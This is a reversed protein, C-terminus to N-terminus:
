DLMFEMLVPMIMQHYTFVEPNVFEALNSIVFITVSRCLPHASQFGKPILSMFQSLDVRVLDSCGEIIRSLVLFGSYLNEPIPSQLLQVIHFKLLKYVKKKPLTISLTELM